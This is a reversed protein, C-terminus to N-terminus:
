TSTVSSMVGRTRHILAIAEDSFLTDSRGAIKLHALYSKIGQPIPTNWRARLRHRRSAAAV